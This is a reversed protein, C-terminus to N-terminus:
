KEDPMLCFRLKTQINVLQHFIWHMLELLYKLLFKYIELFNGRVVASNTSTSMFGLETFTKGVLVETLLNKM